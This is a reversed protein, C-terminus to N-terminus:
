MESVNTRQTCGFCWQIENNVNIRQKYIHWTRCVLKCHSFVLMLWYSLVSSYSQIGRVSWVYLKVSILTLFFSVGSLYTNQWQDALHVYTIYVRPYIRHKVLSHPFSLLSVGDWSFCDRAEVFSLASKWPVLIQSYMLLKAHSYVVSM